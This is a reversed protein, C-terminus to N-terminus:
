RASNRGGRDPLSSPTTFWSEAEAQTTSDFVIQFFAPAPTISPLRLTTRFLQRICFPCYPNLAYWGSLTSSIVTSCLSIVALLVSSQSFSRGPQPHEPPPFNQITSPATTRFLQTCWLLAAPIHASVFLRPNAM